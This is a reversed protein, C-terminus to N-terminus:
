ESSRFLIILGIHGFDTFMVSFNVVIFMLMTFIVLFLFLIVVVVFMFPHIHGFILFLIFIVVVVFLFPHIHGFILFLIFIEVVVFMFPHIHSFISRNWTRWQPLIFVVERFFAKGKNLSNLVLLCLRFVVYISSTRVNVNMATMKIRDYELWNKTM